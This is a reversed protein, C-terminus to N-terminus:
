DSELDLDQSLKRNKQSLFEQLGKQNKPQQVTLPHTKTM